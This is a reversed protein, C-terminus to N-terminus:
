EWDGSNKINKIGFNYDNDGNDKLEKFRFPNKGILELEAYCEACYTTDHLELDDDTDLKMGCAPCKAKM